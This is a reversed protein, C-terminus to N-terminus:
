GNVLAIFVLVVIAIIAARTSFKVFGHFTQEQVSIDTSGPIHEDEAM